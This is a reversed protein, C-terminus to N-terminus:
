RRKPTIPAPASTDEQPTTGGSPGTSPKSSGSGKIVNPQVHTVKEPGPGKKMQVDSPNDSPDQAQNGPVEGTVIQSIGKLFAMLAVKEPRSLSQIYEDMAKSVLSDKFSKGSRIANLKDVIDRPKVEGRKLKETEDDMTKSAEPAEKEGDSGDGGEQADGGSGFLDDVGGGSSEEPEPQSPVAMGQKEKETLANQALASKVGEDIVHSLFAQLSNGSNLKVKKESM